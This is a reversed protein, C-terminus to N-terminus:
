KLLIMKRISSFKNGDSGEAELSYFYIGSNLGTGDFTFEHLGSKMENKTFRSIEQGLVNFVLLSVRSDYPLTFEIRTVPNFPNPYNQELSFSLPASIDVEVVDSYASTGDYDIQRLRYKIVAATIGSLEDTYSYAHVNVSSGNGDVFAIVQWEGSINREVEFGKNNTETATTWSLDVNRGNVDATFSVMEVPIVSRLRDWYLKKESSNRGVWLAGFDNGTFPMPIIQPLYLRDSYVPAFESIQIPTSFSGGYSATSYMLKDSENSQLSDSFYILAFGTNGDGTDNVYRVDFYYNDTNINLSLLQPPGFTTGGDTSKLAHVSRGGDAGLTYVLWAEGNGSAAKFQKRQTGDSPIPTSFSGAIGLTGPTTERYRVSRIASVSTDPQISVGYYNILITDGTASMCGKAAVGTGSLYLSSTWNFGGNISGFIRIDNNALLDVLLYLSGTSSCVVDFDRYGAPYNTFQNLSGTRVNWSTIVSYNNFFVYISDDPSKVMKLNQVQNRYNIGTPYLVWTSGKDTSTYIIIGLNSTAMTDNVAVYLTNDSKQVGSMPGLPEYNNVVVNVGWQDIGGTRPVANEVAINQPYLSFLLCSLFLFTFLKM